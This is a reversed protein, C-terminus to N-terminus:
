PKTARVYAIRLVESNLRIIRGFSEPQIMQDATLFFTETLMGDSFVDAYKQLSHLKFCTSLQGTGDTSKPRFTTLNQFM